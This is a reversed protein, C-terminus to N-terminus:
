GRRDVIGLTLAAATIWRGEDQADDWKGLEAGVCRTTEPFFGEISDASLLVERLAEVLSEHVSLNGVIIEPTSIIIQVAAVYLTRAPSETVNCVVYIVPYDNPIEEESQGAHIFVGSFAPVSALWAAVAKELTTNM